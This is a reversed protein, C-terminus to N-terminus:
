SPIVAEDFMRLDHDIARLVLRDPFVNLDVFHPTSASYATYRESGTRRTGAGAGTVVYTVGNM